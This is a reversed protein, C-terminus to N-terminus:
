GMATLLPISIPTVEGAPVDTVKPRGSDGSDPGTVRMLASSVSTLPSSTTATLAQSPEGQVLSEYRFQAGVPAGQGGALTTSRSTAPVTIPLPGASDPPRRTPAFSSAPM